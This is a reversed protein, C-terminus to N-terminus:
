ILNTLLNKIKRLLKGASFDGAVNMGVANAKMKWLPPIFGLQVAPRKKSSLCGDSKQGVWFDEHVNPMQRLRRPPLHQRPGAPTLPLSLWDSYLPLMQSM